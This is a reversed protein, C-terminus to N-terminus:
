VNKFSSPTIIVAINISTQEQRLNQLINLIQLFFSNILQEDEFKVYRKKIEPIDLFAYKDNTTQVPKTGPSREFKYFDVLDNSSLLQFVSKCGSCCFSKEQYIIPRFGLQDGCHFCTPKM